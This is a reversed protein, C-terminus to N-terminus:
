LRRPHTSAPPVRAAWRRQVAEWVEPNLLSPPREGRLVQLIQELAHLVLRRKGVVTASAVHPTIVVNDRGLLPNGALPPEPDTVDLGAGFLQGRDLAATLAAEDVHGGRSVNVFVAGPKMQAFREANMLKHTEDNLPLHLSLFDSAALLAELSPAKEVGLKAFREDSIYPDYAAVQMGIARAIGSVHGGIRGLGVLGLRKQDLELAVYEGWINKRVGSELMRNLENEVRKIQRAVSMMLTVAQEATSVTPADPANVVAIDRATAAAVDVKDYGVGTRAIILLRPAREMAAADYARGGAMVADALELNHYPDSAVMEGPGIGDAIDELYHRFEDPVAGEFWINYM